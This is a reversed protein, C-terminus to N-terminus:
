AYLLSLMELGVGVELEIGLHRAPVECLQALFDGAESPLYRLLQLVSTLRDRRDM